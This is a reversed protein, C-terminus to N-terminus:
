QRAGHHAIDCWPTSLLEVTVSPDHGPSATLLPGYCPLQTEETEPKYLSTWGLQLGWAGSPQCSGCGGVWGALLCPTWQWPFPGPKLDRSHLRLSSM